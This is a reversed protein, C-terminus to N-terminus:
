ILVVVGVLILLIGAVASLEASYRTVAEQVKKVRYAATISVGIALLPAVFVLNYILLYPLLEALSTAGSARALTIFALLPGSSCPLLTFSALFGLLGATLISGAARLAHKSLKGGPRALPLTKGRKEAVAEALTYFGFSIAAVGLLWVPLATSAFAIGLAVLLYGTYVAATFALATAMVRKPNKSRISTALLLVAYVYFTCPNISDLAAFGVLEGLLRTDLM